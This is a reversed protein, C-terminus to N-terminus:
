RLKRFARGINRGATEMDKGAKQAFGEFRECGRQTEACAQKGIRETERRIKRALEETAVRTQEAIRKVERQIKERTSIEASPDAEVEKAGEAALQRLQANQTVLEMIIPMNAPNRSLEVILGENRAIIDEISVQVAPQLDAEAPLQGQPAANEPQMVCTTELCYAAALMILLKAKM